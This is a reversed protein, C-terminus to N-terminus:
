TLIDEDISPSDVSRVLCSNRSERSELSAGSEPPCLLVHLLLFVAIVAFVGCLRSGPGAPDHFDWAHLESLRGALRRQAGGHGTLLSARVTIYEYTDRVPRPALLSHKISQQRAPRPAHPLAHLPSAPEWLRPRSRLPADPHGTSKRSREAPGRREANKASRLHLEDLLLDGLGDNLISSLRVLGRLPGYQKLSCAFAGALHLLRNFYWM